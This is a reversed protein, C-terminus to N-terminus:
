EEGQPGDLQARLIDFRRTTTFGAKRYLRGAPSKEGTWLFWASHAGLAQMRTLALHLLVEGLGLGRQDGRVGFPGFRELRFEYAAFMAWGVLEGDPARAVVIRELPLGGRVADRIARAWDASFHEGALAVLSVLETVSPTGFTFGKRTLEDLRARAEGPMTYGALSRDMAAAQAIRAFGFSELLSAAEPYAVRDLGPLIYHPTYCAFDVETRGRERLWNLADAVLRRGLGRGRYAPDVFFFLLWGKAPELDTGTLPVTRVVAHAAGVLRDDEFALRLGDPSFATDMLVLDRFREVTIPDVPLSACWVRVLEEVLGSRTASAEDFGLLEM